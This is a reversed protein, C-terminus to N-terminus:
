GDIAEFKITGRLTPSDTDYYRMIAVWLNTLVDRAIAPTEGTDTVEFSGNWSIRKRAQDYVGSIAHINTGIYTINVNMDPIAYGPNSFKDVWADVSIRLRQSHAIAGASININNSGGPAM